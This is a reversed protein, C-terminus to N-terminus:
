EVRFSNLYRAVDEPPLTGLNMVIWAVALRGSGGLIRVAGEYKVGAVENTFFVDVGNRGNESIFHQSVITRGHNLVLKDRAGNILRAYDSDPLSAPVRFLDVQFTIGPVSAKYSEISMDSASAQRDLLVPCEISFASGITTIWPSRASADVHTIQPGLPAGGKQFLALLAVVGAAGALLMAISKFGSLTSRIQAPTSASPHSSAKEELHRAITEVPIAELSAFEPLDQLALWTEEGERCVLTDTKINSYRLQAALEILDFPGEARNGNAYFFRRALVLGSPVSFNHSPNVM